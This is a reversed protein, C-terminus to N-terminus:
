FKPLLNWFVWFDRTSEESAAVSADVVSASTLRQQSNEFAGFNKPPDSSAFM